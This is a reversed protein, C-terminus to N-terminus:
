IVKAAKSQCVFYQGQKSALDEMWRYNDDFNMTTIDFKM